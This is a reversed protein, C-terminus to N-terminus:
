MKLSFDVWLDRYDRCKRWIAPDSKEIELFWNEVGGQYNTDAWM